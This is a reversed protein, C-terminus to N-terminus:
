SSLATDLAISVLSFAALCVVGLMIL